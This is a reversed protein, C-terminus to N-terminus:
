SKYSSMPGRSKSFRQMHVLSDHLMKKQFFFDTDTFKEKAEPSSALFTEYFRDFFEKGEIVTGIARWFSDLYLKEYDIHDVM